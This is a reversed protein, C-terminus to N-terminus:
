TGPPADSVLNAPPLGPEAEIAHAGHALLKAMMVTAVLAGVAALLTLLALEGLSHSKPVMWSQLAIAIVTLAIYGIGKGQADIRLADNGRRAAFGALATALLGVGLTVVLPLALSLSQLYQTSYQDSMDPKYLANYLYPFQQLSVGAGWLAAAGSLTLTWGDLDRIGARAARLAGLGLVVLAIISVVAQGITLFRLFGVENGRGLMFMITFLVVVVAAIVRTWLGRAASRLGASALEPRAPTEGRAANIALWGLAAFRLARSAFYVAFYTNSGRDLADDIPARLVPPLWGIFAVLVAIYAVSRYEPVGAPVLAAAFVMWAAIAVYEYADFIWLHAFPNTFMMAVMVLGVAVVVAMAAAAIKFFRANPGGRSVMELAYLLVLIEAAFAIGESTLLPAPTFHDKAAMMWVLRAIMWVGWAGFAIVASRPVTRM